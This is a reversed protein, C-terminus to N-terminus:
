FPIDDDDMPGADAPANGAWSDDPPLDGRGSAGRNGGGGAGAGQPARGGQPRGQGGGQRQGGSGGGRQGGEEGGGVFTVERAVVESIYKKVGDKEYSRNDIKGVIHIQRGKTIFKGIAEATAGWAVINHWTTVENYNGERDKVRENTALSFRAKCTGGQTYTVEPDSGLNGLLIVMNVSKAM